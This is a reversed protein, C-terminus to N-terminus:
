LQVCWQPLEGADVNSGDMQRPRLSDHFITGVKVSFQKKCGRCKFRQQKSLWICNGVEGCGICFVVGDPWRMLKVENICTLPNSLIEVADVLTIPYDM